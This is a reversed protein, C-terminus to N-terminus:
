CMSVNIMFHDAINVEKFHLTKYLSITFHEFKLALINQNKKILYHSIALYWTDFNLASRITLAEKIGWYMMYKWKWIGWDEIDCSLFFWSLKLRM